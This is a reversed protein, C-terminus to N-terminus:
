NGADCVACGAGQRDQGKKLAKIEAEGIVTDEELIVNDKADEIDDRVRRGVLREDDVSLFKVVKRYPTESSATNM